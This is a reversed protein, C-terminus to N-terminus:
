NLKKGLTLTEGPWTKTDPLVPPPWPNFNAETEASPGGVNAINMFAAIDFGWALVTALTRARDSEAILALFVFLGSSLLLQGPGPPAKSKKWTRYVIIGEGVLWAVVIGGM